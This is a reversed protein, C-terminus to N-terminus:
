SVALALPPKPIEDSIIFGVQESWESVRSPEDAAMSRLAVVHEGQSFNMDSLPAIYDESERLSGVVTVHPTISGDSQVVGLEYSLEYQIPTGDINTTPAQWILNKPNINAM